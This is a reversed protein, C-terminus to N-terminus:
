TKVGQCKYCMWESQGKSTSPSLKVENITAWCGHHFPFEGKCKHCKM